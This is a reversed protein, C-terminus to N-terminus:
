LLGCFVCRWWSGGGRAADEAKEPHNKEALVDDEDEGEYRPGQGRHDDAGRPKSTGETVAVAV